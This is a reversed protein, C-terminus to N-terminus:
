SRSIEVEFSVKATQLFNRGGHKVPGFSAQYGGGYFMGDGWDGRSHDLVQTVADVYLQLKPEIGELRDQTVRVEVAMEATGSFSQFKERLSNTLKECYVQLAPYQAGVAREALEAAVNQEGIHRPDFQPLAIAEAAALAAVKGNVGAPATMRGTVKAALMKALSAM